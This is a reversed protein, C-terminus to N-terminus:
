KKAHAANERETEERQFEKYEELAKVQNPIIIEQQFDDTLNQEDHTCGASWLTAALTLPAFMLLGHIRLKKSSM